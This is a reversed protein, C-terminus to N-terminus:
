LAPTTEHSSKTLSSAEARDIFLIGNLHDVEHQIVRAHLGKASFRKNTGDRLTVSVDIETARYVMGFIGPLSLCGEEMIEKTFSFAHIVPNIYAQPGDKTNVIIIRVSQNIQPAALGIGDAALMAPIMDDILKQTAPATIETVETARQRLVPHPNTIITLM